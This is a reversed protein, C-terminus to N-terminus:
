RGLGNYEDNEGKYTSPKEDEEEMEELIERLEEKTAKRSYAKPNKHPMDWKTRIPHAFKKTPKM